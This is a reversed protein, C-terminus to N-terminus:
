QQQQFQVGYQSYDDVQPVVAPVVPEAASVSYRELSRPGPHSLGHHSRLARRSRLACVDCTTWAHRTKLDLTGTSRSPNYSWLPNRRGCSSFACPSILCTKFVVELSSAHNFMQASSHDELRNKAVRVLLAERAHPRELLLERNDVQILM